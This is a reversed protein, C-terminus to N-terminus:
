AADRSKLLDMVKNVFKMSYLETIIKGNNYLTSDLKVVELSEYGDTSLIPHHFSYGALEFYLYLHNDDQHICIPELYGLMDDKLAYYYDKQEKAHGENNYKDYYFYRCERAEWRRYM